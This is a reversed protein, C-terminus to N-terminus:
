DSGPAHTKKKGNAPGGHTGFHETNRHQPYVAGDDRRERGKGSTDSPDSSGPPVEKAPPSSNKDSM